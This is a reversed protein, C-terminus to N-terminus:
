DESYAEIIAAIKDHELWLTNNMDEVKEYDCDRLAKTIINAAEYLDTFGFSAALGKMSHVHRYATEYNGKDFEEQYDDLSRDDLFGKVLKIYIEGHGRLRAIAEDVKCNNNRLQEILLNM